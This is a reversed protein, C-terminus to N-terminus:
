PYEIPFWEAHLEKMEVQDAESLRKFVINDHRFSGQGIISMLLAHARSHMKPQMSSPWADSSVGGTSRDEYMSSAMM